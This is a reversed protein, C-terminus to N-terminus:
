FYLVKLSGACILTERKGPQKMWLSLGSRLGAVVDEISDMYIAHKALHRDDGVKPDAM